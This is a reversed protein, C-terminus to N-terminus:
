YRVGNPPVAGGPPWGPRVGDPGPDTRQSVGARGAPEVYGTIIGSHVHGGVLDVRDDIKALATTEDVRGALDVATRPRGPIVSREADLELVVDLALPPLRHHLAAVVDDAQVGRHDQGAGDPLCGPVDGGKVVRQHLAGGAVVAEAGVLEGLLVGLAGALLDGLVVEGVDRARVAAGAALVGLRALEVHHELGEQARHLAFLPHVVQPRLGRLADEDVEGVHHGGRALFRREADALDALREAVLDRGAVEDEPGALELLHLHLEEDLGALVLLPVLVPDVLAGAPVGVEADVRVVQAAVLVRLFLERMVRLAGDVDLVPEPETALLPTLQLADGVAGVEVEGRM